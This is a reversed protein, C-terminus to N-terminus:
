VANRGAEDDAETGETSGLTEALTPHIRRFGATIQTWQVGAGVRRGVGSGEDQKVGIFAQVSAM